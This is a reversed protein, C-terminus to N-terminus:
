PSLEWCRTLAGQRYGGPRAMFDSSVGMRRLFAAVPEPVAAHWTVLAPAVVHGTVRKGASVCGSGYPAEDPRALGGLAPAVEHM